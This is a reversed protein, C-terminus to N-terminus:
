SNRLWIVTEAAYRVVRGQEDAQRFFIQARIAGTPVAGGSTANSDFAVREVYRAITVPNDGDTRRELVNVGEANTVVM